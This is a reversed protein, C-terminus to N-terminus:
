ARVFSAKMSLFPRDDATGSADCLINGEEERVRLNWILETWKTPDVPALFKISRAERLLLDTDLAQSLLEQVLQVLTAGPTIPMGPFHGGFVPHRPDIRVNAQWGEESRSLQEIHFISRCPARGM